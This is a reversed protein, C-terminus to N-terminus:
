CSSYVDLPASPVDGVVEGSAGQSPAVVAAMCILCGGLRHEQGWGKRGKGGGGGPSLIMLVSTPNGVLKGVVGNSLLELPSVEAAMLILRSLVDLVGAERCLVKNGGHFEAAAGVAGAGAALLGAHLAATGLGEGVGLALLAALKPLLAEGALADQNPHNGRCLEGLLAVAATMVGIQEQIQSDVL